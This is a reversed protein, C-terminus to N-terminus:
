ALMALLINQVFQNSSNDFVPVLDEIGCQFAVRVEAKASKLGVNGGVRGRINYRGEMETGLCKTSFVYERKSFGLQRWAPDSAGYPQLLM